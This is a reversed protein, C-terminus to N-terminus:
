KAQLANVLAVPDIITRLAIRKKDHKLYTTRGTKMAISSFREPTIEPDVQAALLYVGAIYPIAWSMCGGNGYFVYEDAGGQSATTRSGSPVLLGMDPYGKGSYFRDAWYWAPRCSAMDDPDLLPPRDLPMLMTGNTRLTCSRVVLIGMAEAQKVAATMDDYGDQSPSWGVSISIARIRRDRPLAQNIQLLRRVCKARYGFNIRKETRWLDRSWSGMYYLDADPAVGVTKGVAISAVAAGHMQAGTGPRVNVEEYFRLRDAYEQHETLLAQDIIGIATGRGTIGRAHLKRIGLGPNKGLAVIRDLGFGEPMRDAPPWLTRSDFSAHLIDALSSRLDLRTLDRGRFDVQWLKKSKPDYSPATTM